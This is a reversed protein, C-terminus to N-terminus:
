DRRARRPWLPTKSLLVAVIVLFLTLSLPSSAIGLALAGLDERESIIARRWNDDILRSLIIGLVLPGVQYGYLKMFYGLIGFGVMWWVDAVANNISYAGVVSLLV